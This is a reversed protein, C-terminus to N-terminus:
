PFHSYLDAMRALVWPWALCLLVEQSLLPGYPKTKGWVRDENRRKGPLGHSAQVWLGVPPEQPAQSGPQDRKCLGEAM